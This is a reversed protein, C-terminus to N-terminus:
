RRRQAFEKLFDPHHHLYHRELIEMTVRFYDCVRRPDYGLQCAWTIATHRLVHPSAHEIGARTVAGAFGKKIDLVPEGNWEIVHTNTTERVFRLHRALAASIPVLSRRKNSSREGVPAFNIRNAELDVHGGHRSPEWRLSLLAEKRQGTELGLRIFTAVHPSVRAANLLRAAEHRTLWRERREGDSPKTVKIPHILIGERHALNLAAQLANLERRITGDKVGQRARHAQYARCSGGRVETALKDGWWKIIPTAAYALRTLDRVQGERETLYDTM